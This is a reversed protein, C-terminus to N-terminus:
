DIAALAYVLTPPLTHVESSSNARYALATSLTHARQEIVGKERQSKKLEATLVAIQQSTQEERAQLCHIICQPNNIVSLVPYLRLPVYSYNKSENSRALIHCVDLGCSLAHRVRMRDRHRKQARKNKERLVVMKDVPQADTQAQASSRQCATDAIASAASRPEVPPRGKSLLTLFHLGRKAPLINDLPEVACDFSNSQTPASRSQAQTSPEITPSADAQGTSAAWELDSLDINLHAPESLALLDLSFM